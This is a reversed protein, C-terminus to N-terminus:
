YRFNERLIDRQYRSLNTEKTGNGYNPVEIVVDEIGMSKILKKVLEDLKMPKTRKTLDDPGSCRDNIIFADEPMRVQLTKEIREKRALLVSTLLPSCPICRYDEDRELPKFEKGDNTLQTYVHLNYFGYDEILCFDKWRLACVINSELGTLLKLLIGVHKSNLNKAHSLILKTARIFEQETFTKKTLASRMLGFARNNRSDESLENELANETCHNKGIAFDLARSLINLCRFKFSPSKDPYHEELFDIYEECTTAELNKQGLESDAIEGLLDTDSKNFMGDMEPYIYLLTKLSIRQGQLIEQYRRSIAERVSYRVLAGDKHITIKKYPYDEKLYSVIDERKIDLKQKISEKIRKGRLAKGGDRPPECVYVELRRLGAKHQSSTESYWFRIEPSFDFFKASTKAAKGKGGGRASLSKQKSRLFQRLSKNTFSLQGLQKKDSSFEDFLLSTSSNAKDRATVSDVWATYYWDNRKLQAKWFCKIRPASGGIGKPILFLDEVVFSKDKVVSCPLSRDDMFDSDASLAYIWVEHRAKKILDKFGIQIEGIEQMDLALVNEYPFAEDRTKKLCDDLTMFHFDDRKKRWCLGLDGYHKELLLAENKDQLVFTVDKSDLTMDTHWKEIFFPSPFLVLNKRNTGDDSRVNATFLSYIFSNELVVNNPTETKKTPKPGDSFGDHYLTKKGIYLACVAQLPTCGARYGDANKYFTRAKHAVEEKRKNKDTENSLKLFWSIQFRNYLEKPSEEDIFMAKCIEMQQMRSSGLHNALEEAYQYADNVIRGMKDKIQKERFDLPCLFIPPYFDMFEKQLLPMGKDESIKLITQRFSTFLAKGDIKDKIKGEDFATKTALLNTILRLPSDALGLKSCATRFSCVDAVVFPTVDRIFDLIPFRLFRAMADNFTPASEKLDVFLSGPPHDEKNNDKLFCFTAYSRLLLRDDIGQPPSTNLLRDLESTLIVNQRTSFM